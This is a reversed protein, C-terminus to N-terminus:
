RLSPVASVIFHSVALFLRELHKQVMWVCLPLLKLYHSWCLAISKCGNWVWDGHNIVFFYVVVLEIVHLLVIFYHWRV